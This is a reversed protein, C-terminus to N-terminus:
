AFWLGDIAACRCTAFQNDVCNGKKTSIEVAFQVAISVMTHLNIREILAKPGTAWGIRIGSSLIKSMSDLRLVRGDVDM